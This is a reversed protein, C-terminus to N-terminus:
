STENEKLKAIFAGHHHVSHVNMSKNQAEKLIRTAFYFSNSSDLILKKCNLTAIDNLSKIANNGLVIFDPSIGSPLSFDRQQIQLITVRNWVVLRCGQFIRVFDFNDAQRVTSVGSQLRNPRIHFRIKEWDNVLASDTFFFAQGSDMIDWASHGGVKYVTIKQVDTEKYFHMWQIVSFGIVCFLMVVAASFKKFEILLIILVIVGILLWCQFTTIYVNDILSFPLAEMEFVGYNLIKITWELLFGVLGALPQIFSVFILVIGMVLVLFSAPIVFLNSFLFYVPFQHFYLLGLAFTAIQAAISVCTIQWINDWLWQKPEWLRSFIPQLYVIGIVALYSLQFGVSMILYPEYLLLCFASAALTNYINTRQSWPRAIAVFSFMAVARLVSPSLGTVFAYGWLVLISFIALTWKGSTTRNLPKLVLLILWYIIGVHLGSVSLVHLSGTAAYAGILDNDLGDTVGLVLASATAQEREGNINRTLAEDAWVRARIAYDMIFNQPQHGTQIVEGDRIFHQHYIKRFTLFRKYDFEGPNAPGELQSPHGKILLKDGYIYAKTFAKKPFYLLVKGTREVWRGNQFQVAEIEAEVKWSNEKEQAQRIITAQYYQITDTDHIFHDSNHYDTSLYVQIFGALLIAPLGIFGSNIIKIGKSNFYSLIIFLAALVGFLICAVNISISDPLYIGLLIGAVLLFVIRVFPYPTWSFM